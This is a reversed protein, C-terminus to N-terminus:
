LKGCMWCLVMSVGWGVEYWIADTASGAVTDGEVILDFGFEKVAIWGLLIPFSWWPTIGFLFPLGFVITSAIFFHTIQALLNSSPTWTM